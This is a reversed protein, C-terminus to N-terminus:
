KIYYKDEKWNKPNNIIYNKVSLFHKNDRIIEDYFRCQWGFFGPLPRIKRSVASKYSRIITSVSNHKPSIKSFFMRKENSKKNDTSVYYAVDRGLRERTEVSYLRPTEVYKKVCTEVSNFDDVTESDNIYQKLNTKSEIVEILIHVHNPMVVSEIIKVNDFHKEIENLCDVAITGQESYRIKNDIIEGFYNDHDTTCITIFYIGPTSYDWNKIRCSKIIFRGSYRKM